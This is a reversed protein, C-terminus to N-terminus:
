MSPLSCSLLSVVVAPTGPVSVLSPDTAAQTLNRTWLEQCHSEEIVAVVDSVFAERSLDAPRRTSSGHGRQDLVLVRFDAALADATARWEGAYGALGHLLLVTRGTGESDSCWLMADPREVPRM